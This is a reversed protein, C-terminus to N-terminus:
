VEMAEEVAEGREDASEFPTTFFSVKGSGTGGFYRDPNVACVLVEADAVADAM